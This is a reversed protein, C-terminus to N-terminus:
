KFFSENLHEDITNAWYGIIVYDPKLELVKPLIPEHPHRLDVNWGEGCIGALKRFLPFSFSDGFVMVRGRANPNQFTRIIGFGFLEGETPQTEPPAPFAPNAFQWEIEDEAQAYWRGVRLLENGPVTEAEKAYNKPDLYESGISFHEDKALERAIAQFTRFVYEAKWHHDSRYFFDYHKQPNERFFERADIVQIQRKRLEALVQDILPNIPDELGYPLLPAYKCIKFPPQVYLVKVGHCQLEQCFNALREPQGLNQPQYFLSVYGNELKVVHLNRPGYVLRVGLENQVFGYSNTFFDPAPTLSGELAQWSEQFWDWYEGPTQPQSKEYHDSFSWWVQRPHILIRGYLLIEAMLLLLVCVCATRLHTQRPNKIFFLFKKLFPSAFGAM